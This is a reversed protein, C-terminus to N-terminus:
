PLTQVKYKKIKADDTILVCNEAQAQAILLRDFPDKHLLPLNELLYVHELNVKLIDFRSDKLTTKWNHPLRLKGASKKIIMEWISVISLFIQSEPNELISKIDRSLKKNKEMWWIFIHTDLLFSKSTVM